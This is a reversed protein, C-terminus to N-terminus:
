SGALKPAEQSPRALAALMTREFRQLTREEDAQDDVIAVKTVDTDGDRFSATLRVLRRGHRDPRLLEALIQGTGVTRTYLPLQRDYTQVDSVAAHPVVGDPDLRPGYSSM